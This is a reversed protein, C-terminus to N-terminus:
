RVNFGKVYSAKNEYIYQPFIKDKLKLCSEWFSFFFFFANFFARYTLISIVELSLFHLLQDMLGSPRTEKEDLFLHSVNKHIDM